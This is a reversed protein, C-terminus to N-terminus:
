NAPSDVGATAGSRRFTFRLVMSRQEDSDTPTFTWKKAAETALRAFYRSPGPVITTADRVTGEKDITVRVTVVITGSITNLASRPVSPSVEAIPLTPAPPQPQVEPPPTESIVPATDKPAPAVAPAPAPTQPESRFMRIGLWTLVAAVAILVLILGLVGKYSRRQVPASLAGDPIRVRIVLRGPSPTVSDSSEHDNTM